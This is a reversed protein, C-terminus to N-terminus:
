GKIEKLRALIYKASDEDILKDGNKINEIRRNLENQQIKDFEEKSIQEGKSNYFAHINM